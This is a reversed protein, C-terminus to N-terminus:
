VVKEIIQAINAAVLTVIATKQGATMGSWFGSAPKKRTNCAMEHLKIDNAIKGSVTGKDEKHELERNISNFKESLGTISRSLGTMERTLDKIDARLEQVLADDSMKNDRKLSPPLAM